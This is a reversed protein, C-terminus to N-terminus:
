GDIAANPYLSRLTDPRGDVSAQWDARWFAIDVPRGEQGMQPDPPSSELARQIQIACGDLLVTTRDQGQGRIIPDTGHGGMRSGSIGSLRSLYEGGDSTPIDQQRFIDKRGFIELEPLEVPDLTTTLQAHAAPSTAVILTLLTTFHAFRKM